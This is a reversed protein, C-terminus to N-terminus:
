VKDAHPRLNRDNSTLGAVQNNVTVSRIKSLAGIHCCIFGYIPRSYVDVMCRSCAGEERGIAGQESASGGGHDWDLM